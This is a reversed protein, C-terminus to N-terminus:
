CREESYKVKENRHLGVHGEKNVQGGTGWGGWRERYAMTVKHISILPYQENKSMRQGGKYDRRLSM